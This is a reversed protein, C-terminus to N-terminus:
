ILPKVEAAFRQLRQVSESMSQGRFDFILERVGIKGFARVDDAIERPRAPSAAATAAATPFAPM